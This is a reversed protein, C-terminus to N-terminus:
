KIILFINKLVTIKLKTQPPMLLFLKLFTIIPNYTNEQDFIDEFDSGEM